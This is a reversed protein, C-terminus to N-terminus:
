SGQGEQEIIVVPMSRLSHKHELHRTLPFISFKITEKLKQAKVTVKSTCGEIPCTLTYMGDKGLKEIIEIDDNTLIISAIEQVKNKIRNLLEGKMDLVNSAFLKKVCKRQRASGSDSSSEPTSESTAFNSTESSDLPLSLTLDPSEEFFNHQRKLTPQPKKQRKQTFCM